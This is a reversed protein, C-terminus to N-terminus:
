WEEDWISRPGTTGADDEEDDIFEFAKVDAGDGEGAYTFSTQVPGCVNNQHQLTVAFLEPTKYTKKM